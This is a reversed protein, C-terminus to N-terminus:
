CGHAYANLFALFDASDWVGNGGEPALDARPDQASYDNLYALFDSSNPAGGSEDWDAICAPADCWSLNDRVWRVADDVDGTSGGNNVILWFPQSNLFAGSAITLELELLYVGARAGASIKYKYHTHWSGDVAIPRMIGPVLVDSAPTVVPALPGWSIGITEPPITAFDANEWRRLARRINFGMSTGSAFAGSGTDFGPDNAEGLASIDAGFVCAPFVIEAEGPPIQGTILSVGVQSLIIDTAHVPQAFAPLSAGAFVIMGVALREVIGPGRCSIPRKLGKM